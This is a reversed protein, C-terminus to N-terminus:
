ELDGSRALLPQANRIHTSGTTSYRTHGIAIHGELRQLDSERFAQSVLGMNTHCHIRSGTATAIGASEQGRHQLAYLGYFAAQAVDVGPAYVGIVGCTEHLSEDEVVVRRRNAHIAM